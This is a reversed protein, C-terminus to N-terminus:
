NGRSDVGFLRRHKKILEMTPGLVELSALRLDDMQFITLIQYGAPTQHWTKIKDIVYTKVRSEYGKRFTMFNPVYGISADLIRLRHSIQPNLEAITDFGKRNM